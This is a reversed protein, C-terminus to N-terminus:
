LLPVRHLVRSFLLELQRRSLIHKTLKELCFIGPSQSEKNAKALGYASNQKLRDDIQETSQEVSDLSNSKM